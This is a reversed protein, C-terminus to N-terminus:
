IHIQLYRTLANDNAQGIVDKVLAKLGVQWQPDISASAILRLFLAVQTDDLRVGTFTDCDVSIGVNYLNSGRLDTEFLIHDRLDAGRFDQGSKDLSSWSVKDNDM